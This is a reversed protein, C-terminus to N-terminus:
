LLNEISNRYGIVKFDDAIYAKPNKSAPIRDLSWLRCGMQNLDSQPTPNRTNIGANPNNPISKPWPKSARGPCILGFPHFGM